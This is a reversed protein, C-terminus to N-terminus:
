KRCEEHNETNENLRTFAVFRVEDEIIEFAWSKLLVHGSGKRWVTNLQIGVVGLPSTRLKKLVRTGLERLLRRRVGCLFVM